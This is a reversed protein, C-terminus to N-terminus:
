VHRAIIVKPWNKIEDARILAYLIDAASKLRIELVEWGFSRWRLGLPEKRKIKETEGSLQTGNRDIILIINDLGYTSATAAAEWIQGEDTEGDGVVVYVYDEEGNMKMGLAIGNAISLGQGLSGTSVKILPNGKVAHTQFASGPQSFSAIDRAKILGFGKLVAYLAPTAHGKSLILNTKELRRNTIKRHYLIALIIDICTMSSHLHFGDLKSLIERLENKVKMSAEDLDDTHQLYAEDRDYEIWSLVKKGLPSVRVYRKGNLRYFEILKYKTLTSANFKLTSLPIDHAKSINNLVRSLTTNGVTLLTKLIIIQKENISKLLIDRLFRREEEM